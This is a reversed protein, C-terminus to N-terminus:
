GRNVACFDRDRDVLAIERRRLKTLNIQLHSPGELDEALLGYRVFELPQDVSNMFV